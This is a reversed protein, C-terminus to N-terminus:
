GKAHRQRIGRGIPSDPAVLLQSGCAACRQRGPSRHSGSGHHGCATCVMRQRGGLTRFLGGAIVSLMSDM